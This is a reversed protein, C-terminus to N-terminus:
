GSATEAAKQEIFGKAASVTELIFAPSLNYADGNDAALPLM